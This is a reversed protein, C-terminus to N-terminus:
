DHPGYIHLRRPATILWDVWDDMIGLMVNTLIYGITRKRDHSLKWTKLMNTKNNMNQARKDEGTQKNKWNNKVKGTAYTSPGIKTRTCHL